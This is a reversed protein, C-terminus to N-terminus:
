QERSARLHRFKADEGRCRSNRRKAFRPAGVPELHTVDAVPWSRSPVSGGHLTRGPGFRDLRAEIDPGLRKAIMRPRQGRGASIALFQSEHGSHAIDATPPFLPNPADAAAVIPISGLPVNAIARRMRIRRSLQNGGRGGNRKTIAGATSNLRRRQKTEDIRWPPPGSQPSPAHRAISSAFWPEDGGLQMRPELRTFECHPSFPFACPPIRGDVVSTESLGRFPQDATVSLGCRGFSSSWDRM